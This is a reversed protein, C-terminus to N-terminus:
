CSVTSSCSSSARSPTLVHIALRRFQEVAGRPAAFQGGIVGGPAQFHDEGSPHMVAPVQSLQDEHLDPVVGTRHLRDEIGRVRRVGMGQRLRHPGLEHDSELSRYNLPLRHVRIM